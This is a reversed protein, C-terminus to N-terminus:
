AESCVQAHDYEDLDKRLLEHPPSFIEIAVSEEQAEGEHKVNLSIIYADRPSLEVVKAKEHRLMRYAIYGLLYCTTSGVQM